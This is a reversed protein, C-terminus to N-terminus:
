HTSSFLYLSYSGLFLKPVDLYVYVEANARMGKM